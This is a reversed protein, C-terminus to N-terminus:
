QQNQGQDTDLDNEFDHEFNSERAHSRAARVGGFHSSISSRIAAPDREPAERAPGGNSAVPEGSDDLRQAPPGSGAPPP